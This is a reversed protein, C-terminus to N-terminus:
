WYLLFHLSCFYAGFIKKEFLPLSRIASRTGNGPWRWNGREQSDHRPQTRCRELRGLNSGRSRTDALDDLSVRRRGMGMEMDAAPRGMYLPANAGVPSNGEVFARFNNRSRPLRTCFVELCNKPIGLNHPNMKRDYQYRFNEYTTQMYFDLAPYSANDLSFVDSHSYYLFITYLVQNSSILYLHFTTLGGVFWCIVFTYLILIGSVPSREIAKLITCREKHMIRLINITCSFLVHLCLLTTSSVFM